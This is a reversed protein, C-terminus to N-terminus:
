DHDQSARARKAETPVIAEDESSQAAFQDDLPLLDQKITTFEPWSENKDFMKPLDSTADM